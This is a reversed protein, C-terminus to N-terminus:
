LRSMEVGLKGNMALHLAIVMGVSVTMLVYVIKEM